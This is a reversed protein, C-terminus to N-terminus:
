EPPTTLEPPMGNWDFQIKLESEFTTDVIRGKEIHFIIVSESSQKIENYGGVSLHIRGSFWVALLPFKKDPIIQENRISEGDRKATIKKLYLKSDQILWAARYGAWNASGGFDFEPPKTKGEAPEGDCYDWLGLMPTESISYVRGGYELNDAVQPTTLMILLLTATNM